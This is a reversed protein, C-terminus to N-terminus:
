DLELGDLIGVNHQTVKSLKSEVPIEDTWRQGNIYTAANPIYQKDVWSPNSKARTSVDNILVESMKHCEKTCWAKAAAQKATKKPYVSWFEDFGDMSNDKTDSPKKKPKGKNWHRRIFNDLFWGPKRSDLKAAESEVWSKVDEGVKYNMQVQKM